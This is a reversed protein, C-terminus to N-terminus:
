NKSFVYEEKQYWVEWVVYPIPNDKQWMLVALSNLQQETIQMDCPKYSFSQNLIIMKNM